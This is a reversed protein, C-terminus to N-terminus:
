KPIPDAIKEEALSSSDATTSYYPNANKEWTLSTSDRVTSPNNPVASFYPDGVDFGKSILEVEGTRMINIISYGFFTASGESGGNGAIVQYTGEEGPQTRQYDHLHASLMAVVHADNLKPWLTPGEPLGAHGTEGQVIGDQYIYYPKHGMVFVHDISPDAEYENVKDVIWQTPIQGELGWPNEDTPANYTDTNMMDFGVNGRVFSFTMQNNVSDVGMVHDRDIPMYDSMYKVWLETAGKLPWEDHGEVNHDAWSLMEHNGPIAVMEIGSSGFDSFVPDNYQAVWADLQSNLLETTSEAYVLDGLFFFLDPKKKMDAMEDFIRRLVYVNASTENTAATDQQDLRNIRNCGVFAFSLVVSDKDIKPETILEDNQDTVEASSGGCGSILLGVSCLFILHSKKM